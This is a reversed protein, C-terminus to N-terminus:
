VVLRISVLLQIRGLSLAEFQVDMGSPQLPVILLEADRLSSIIQIAERSVM